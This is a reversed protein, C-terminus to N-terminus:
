FRYVGELYIMRPTDPRISRGGAFLPTDNGWHFTEEDTVNDVIVAATWKGDTSNIGARMHLKVYADQELIPDLDTSTFYDDEYILTGALQIEIGDSIPRTWDLTANLSYEPANNISDGERNAQCGAIGQSQATLEQYVTCPGNEFDQFEFDLWAGGGSLSLNPTLQWRGEFEFGMLDADAANDVLFALGGDFASFQLDEYQTLFFAGNLEAAGGALSTKFGLEYATAKEEEFIFRDAFAPEDIFGDAVGDSSIRGDFGGSKYAISWSAYLMVDNSVDWQVNAMPSWNDNDWTYKDSSFEEGNFAQGIGLATAEADPRPLGLGVFYDALRDGTAVDTIFFDHRAEKEEDTYRLGLTTRFTDSINWTAQGFVAWSEAEQDHIADFGVNTGIGGAFVTTDNIGITEDLFYENSDYYVGALWEITQGTPSTIRFEQSFSEFDEDQKNSTTAPVLGITVNEEYLESNSFGTISTLTYEGWLYEINLATLDTDLESYEEFDFLPTGDVNTGWLVYDFDCEVFVERCQPTSTYRPNDITSGPLITIDEDYYTEFGKGDMEYNYAEYSFNVSLNDSAEWLLSLRYNDSELAPEDRDILKNEVWGEEELHKYAVRASLTDTLGGTIYGSTSWGGYETEYRGRIEASFENEPPRPTISVAGAVTNKGFLTSQPGRLIEVRGVDLFASRFQSGRNLYVGNSFLGISQDFGQNTGSAIGRIMIMDAIQQQVITVNPIMASLQSLDATAFQDITEGSVFALSIPVDQLSEVRKQATVFVEELQQAQSFSSTLAFQAISVFLLKKAHMM